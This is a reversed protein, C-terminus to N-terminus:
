RVQVTFGKTVATVSNTGVEASARIAIRHPRREIEDRNGVLVAKIVGDQEADAELRLGPPFEVPQLNLISGFGEARSISVPVEVTGGKALDMRFGRYHQEISIAFLPPEVFTVLVETQPIENYGAGDETYFAPLEGRRTLKKGDVRATGFVQFRAQVWGTEPIPKIASPNHMIELTGSPSDTWLTLPKAKLGLPLGDVRVEVSGRFGEEGHIVVPLRAAGGLPGRISHSQAGLRFGPSKHRILLRYPHNPGGRKSNDRLQLVYDGAADADNPNGTQFYHWFKSDLKEKKRVTDFFQGCDVCRDDGRDIFEGDPRALTLNPDTIHSGLSRADVRFAIEDYQDVTFLIGDRDGPFNIRGNVVVPVSIPKASSLEDNPEGEVIEETAGVAFALPMATGAQDDFSLHHVGVPASNAIDVSLRYLCKCPDDMQSLSASLGPGSFRPESSADLFDARLEADVRTGRRGGMPFLSWLMPSRGIAVQYQWEIEQDDRLVTYFDSFRRPVITLIYEGAEEFTHDLYPDTGFYSLNRGLIRGDATMLIAVVHGPAKNRGTLVDFALREGAAARFRFMDSDHVTKIRGEIMVPTSVPQSQKYGDNPETEVVNQWGTVRFLIRESPGKPTEVNLFRPGPTASAASRIRARVQLPNSEVVAVTLDDCDCRIRQVRDLFNGSFTVDIARGAQVSLPFASSVTPWNLAVQVPREESALCPLSTLVSILAVMSLKSVKGKLIRIM